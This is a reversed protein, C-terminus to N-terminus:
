KNKMNQFAPTLFIAHSSPIGFTSLNEPNKPGPPFSLRLKIRGSRNAQSVTIASATPATSKNIPSKELHADAGIKTQM